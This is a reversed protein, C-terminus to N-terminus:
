DCKRAAELRPTGKINKMRHRTPLGMDAFVTRGTYNGTLECM